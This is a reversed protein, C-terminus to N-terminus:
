KTARPSRINAQAAALRAIPVRFPSCSVYTLGIEHCFEVSSPDGGHEGCIGCSMGPRTKRGLEVAMKMLKGVGVTDLRAFPDSEYIKNAYYAPLFKGADDRSFGFTMQTLDNTGFCFFEAEKAIEDATLAARPIEIMTGVEYKLDSKAAAILEDATKVVIDKVFKLEKVEGTLPIMIEPVINWDAHRAKVAMAAKIVAKTQMVAIEPYTVTLRCGRHGMMPNFEHLSDIIEKIQKVSKNKAKALAEIDAKETPVFEHLPPDLFRITVPYGGLAEFLGEFDAQQMPEIKALAEVREEVTDSCIMERFAGIRAPDFFMHETRCLGIGQAGFAAAQKADKPTDANTRVGLAKYKDALEMIRGFYGSNPDAPVTKILRGYINGTSGDLSIEDGERYIKGALEFYKEDEHMKIDGCGSVCCTGMGRAVVAAHSTQGGRVTLIGQSYKMGEIDEPSTELRVLIVKKKNKGEKVADEATFVISGAAAGPSAAIGKGIVDTKDAAKLDKADFTPHLLMDLSKADIQMLAEQETIMGEDILDCAIKIAAAATRKGNRTQLMYLKENEVTFEMDQMDRYHNELIKCVEQFQKYVEPFVEAMKAIPMPTRVGAVVDEGQANTLFEGMLGKEGTAPNRTFAVGTGCNDGMNGFAMMQVNVATGWSYPIDHDMRYINARPNDWSRFVAKIAEFLQEKPDNPFEKGLQKKYEAKFQNALTKLDEADLEVDLTVGKKEKMEDILKEFYKKGVEMVVDSFMQIFRRYCDWAWRPNNSKTAIVNVVEENLGLNLITDMMGPMSARAGSRVSVLLPNEKDGFKKGCIKEMKDIYEMIEAQIDPNIQKGDEYYQTCAETSITFGQPVPLGINTMEALNAGKGGLLERMKANGETFLYCYKKAM